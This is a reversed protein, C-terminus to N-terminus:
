LREAIAQIFGPDDMTPEAIGVMDAGSEFLRRADTATRVYGSALLLLPDSKVARVFEYDPEGRGGDRVNFHLGFVGSGEIEDLITSYDEIVGMRFKVILPIDLSTFAEVWRFLEMRNEPLVMARLKGLRLYPEYSGHVNFEVLDGGARRFCEAAELGWELKPTALNLCTFVGSSGRADRCEEWLFAECEEPDPPLFYRERGHAPPEALYAGLQIMACGERRESCFSGDTVGMMSSLFLGGRLEDRLRDFSRRMCPVGQQVM